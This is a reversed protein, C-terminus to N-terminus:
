IMSAYAQVILLRDSNPVPRFVGLFDAGDPIAQGLTQSADDENKFNDLCTWPGGETDSAALGTLSEFAGNVYVIQQDPGSGRSVAVAVPVNDLLHKYRNNEIARALSSSALIQDVQEPPVGGEGSSM